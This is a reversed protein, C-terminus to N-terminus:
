VLTPAGAVKLTIAATMKDEVPLSPEYGSVFAPLTWTTTAPDPLVIRWNRVTQDNFFGLVGSALDHTPDTPNLQIDFGVEGGDKLGPIFEMWNSPSLQHTAEVPDAAFGPGDVDLVEAITVFVGSGNVREVQVLTGKGLRANAM